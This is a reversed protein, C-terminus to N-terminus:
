YLASRNPLPGPLDAAATFRGATAPDHLLGQCKKDNAAQLYLQVQQSLAHGTVCVICLRGKGAALDQWQMPIVM